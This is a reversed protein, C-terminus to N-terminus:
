VLDVTSRITGKGLPLPTLPPAPKQRPNLAPAQSQQDPQSPQPNQAGLRATLLCAAALIALAEQFKNTRARILFEGANYVVPQANRRRRNREWIDGFERGDFNRLLERPEALQHYRRPFGPPAARRTWIPNDERTSREMHIIGSGHDHQAFRRWHMRSCRWDR